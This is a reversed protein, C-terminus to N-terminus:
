LRLRDTLDIVGTGDDTLLGLRNDDYRVFRM